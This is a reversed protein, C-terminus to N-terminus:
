RGSVSTSPAVDKTHRVAGAPTLAFALQEVPAAALAARFDDDHYPRDAVLTERSYESSSSLSGVTTGLAIGAREPMGAVPLGSDEIAQGCAVLTLATARDIFSTGKRGLLARADFSALAPAHSCPLPQPFLGTVDSRLPTGETLAGNMAALGLGAACVVGAGTVVLGTM